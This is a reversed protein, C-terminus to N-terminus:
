AGGALEALVEAFWALFRLPEGSPSMEVRGYCVGCWISGSLDGATVLWLADASPYQGFRVCGPPQGAEECSTRLEPFLVGDDPRAEAELARVRRRLREATVPFPTAAGRVGRVGALPAIEFNCYSGPMEGGDGVEQLFRRYEEPLAIGLRAEWAALDAEALPARPRYAWGQGRSADLLARVRRM